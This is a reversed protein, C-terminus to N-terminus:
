SAAAGEPTLTAEVHVTGSSATHRHVVEVAYSRGQWEVRAWTGIPAHRVVVRAGGILRRDSLPDRASSVPTVTCGTVVVPMAAPRGTRNGYSDTYTEEPWVTITHPGHDLLSM